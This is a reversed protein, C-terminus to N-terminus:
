NINKYYEDKKVSSLSKGLLGNCNVKTDISEKCWVLNPGWTIEKEMLRIHIALFYFKQLWEMKSYIFGTKIQFM